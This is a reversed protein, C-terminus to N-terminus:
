TIESIIVEPMYVVFALLYPCRDFFDFLFKNLLCDVDSSDAPLNFMLFICARM